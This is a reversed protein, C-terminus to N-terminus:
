QDAVGNATAYANSGDFVYNQASCKSATTGITMGGKMNSPWSFSHGGVADQCIIFSLNQGASANALTSSTVNSTLTIKFTSATGADFTPTASFSVNAFGGPAFSSAHKGDLMDANLNAVVNMDTIGALKPANVESKFYGKDFRNDSAGGLDLGGDSYSGLMNSLLELSYACNSWSTTGVVNGTKVGFFIAGPTSGMDLLHNSSSKATCGNGSNYLAGATLVGNQAGASTLFLGDDGDNASVNLIGAWGATGTVRFRKSSGSTLARIVTGDDSLNSDGLAAGGTFKALTNVSGSAAGCNETGNQDLTCLGAGSKFYIDVFGSPPTSSPTNQVQAQLPVRTKLAATENITPLVYTYASTPNAQVDYTAANTTGLVRYEGSNTQIVQYSAAGPVTYGSLHIYNSSDLADPANNVVIDSSKLSRSGNAGVAIIGLIYQTSGPTGVVTAILGGPSRLGAVELEGDGMCLTDTSCPPLGYAPFQTANDENMWFGRAMNGTSQFFNVGANANSGQKAGLRVGSTLDTVSGAAILGSDIRSASDNFRIGGRLTIHSTAGLGLIQQMRNPDITLDELTVSSSNQFDFYPATSSGAGPSPDGYRGNSIRIIPAGFGPESSVVQYVAEFNDGEILIPESAGHLSYITRSSGGTTRKAIFSGGVNRIFPNMGGIASDEFVISKANPHAIYVGTGM